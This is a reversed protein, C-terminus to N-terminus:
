PLDVEVPEPNCQLILDVILKAVHSPEGVRLGYQAALADAVRATRPTRVLGPHVVHARIGLKGYEHHVAHALGSLFSKTGCYLAAGPMGAAAGQSGIWVVVGYRQRRLRDLIAASLLVAHTCNTRVTAEITALDLAHLRRPGQDYLPNVGVALIAGALREEHGLRTILAKVDALNSQDCVMTALRDAVAAPLGEAARDLKTRTRGTVLINESTRELLAHACALGIGESAGSVLIM